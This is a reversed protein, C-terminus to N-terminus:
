ILTSPIKHDVLMTIKQEILDHTAVLSVDVHPAYGEDLIPVFVEGLHPPSTRWFGGTGGYGTHSRRTSHGCPLPLCHNM